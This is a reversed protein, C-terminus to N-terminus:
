HIVRVSIMDKIDKIKHIWPDEIDEEVDLLTIALENKSKNILNVINVQKLEHTIQTIMSPVNKHICVIRTKGNREMEVAPFNVSNKITGQELYAMVQHVAMRACNDESEPTSAGLHPLAVIKPHDLMGKDPFDTIYAAIQDTDLAKLLDDTHVLEKRAFNLIRMGPKMKHIADANIMHKTQENAPVHLTIFDCTHYIEDLSQAPHVQKSLAWANKVSLYPDYGIVEMGLAVALNAVEIGIAGLGIVGLKRNMLEIGTFQSKGKEITKTLMDDEPLQIVWRNAAIVPRASLLLAGIVLEKVANANAGPTNFVVIGADSCRQIPINNVGAGCRAICKLEDNFELEHLDASRVLIADAQEDAIEYQPNLCDLGAKAIKNLTKIKM